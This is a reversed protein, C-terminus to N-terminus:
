DKLDSVNRREITSFGDEKTVWYYFESYEENLYNLFDPDHTIIVLQLKGKVDDVIRSIAKSLAESNHKDLNTTPEDLTLIACDSAFVQALAIRIVLSALVKQGASCRGRMDMEVGSNNVMVVKYNYQKRKDATTGESDECAIRITEIDSGQYTTRWFHSIQNNVDAMRRIHFTSVAQDLVKYYTNLDNCAMDATVYDVAAKKYQDDTNRFKADKLDRENRTMVEVLAGERGKVQSIQGELNRAKGELESRKRQLTNFDKTSLKKEEESIKANLEEIEKTTELLLRNDEFERIVTRQESCEKELKKEKATLIPVRQNAEDIKTKLDDMQNRLAEFSARDGGSSANVVQNSFHELKRLNDKLKEERVLAESRIKKLEKRHTALETQLCPIKEDYEKISKKLESVNSALDRIIENYARKFDMIDNELNINSMKLDGVKSQLDALESMEVLKEELQKSISEIESSKSVVETASSEVKKLKELLEKVEKERVSQTEQKLKITQSDRAKKLRLEEIDKEITQIKSEVESSNEELNRKQDDLVGKLGKIIKEVDVDGGDCFCYEENVKSVFEDRIKVDKEITEQQQELRGLKSSISNIMGNTKSILINNAKLEEMVSEHEEKKKDLTDMFDEIQLLLDELSGEFKEPINKELKNKTKIKESLVGNINSIESRVKMLQSEEQALLMLEAKIPKLKTEYDVRFKKQIELDKKLRDIDGQLKSKSNKIEEFMKMTAELTKVEKMKDARYKKIKDLSKVYGMSGFIQDFKEKLVKGESLPWCNDEQHCFIVNTLVAKSVGMLSLMEVSTEGHKSSLIADQSGDRQIVMDLTKMSTTVGGGRNTKTVMEISRTATSTEGDKAKFKLKVQARIKGQGLWM